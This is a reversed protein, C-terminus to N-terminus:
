DVVSVFASDLKWSCLADVEIVPRMRDEVLFFFLLMVRDDSLLNHIKLNQEFFSLVRNALYVVSSQRM